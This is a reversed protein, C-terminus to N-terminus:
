ESFPEVSLRRGVLFADATLRLPTVDVLSAREDLLRAFKEYIRSYEDRPAEVSEGGEVELRAGGRS